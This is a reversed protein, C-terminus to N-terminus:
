ALMISCYFKLQAHMTATTIRQPRNASLQALAQAAASCVLAGSPCTVCKVSKQLALAPTRLLRM